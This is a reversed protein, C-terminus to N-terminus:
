TAAFTPQRQTAVHPGVDDSVLANYHAELDRVIRQFSFMDVARARAATSMRKRLSPNSVIRQIADGLSKEDNVTVLFGTEGDRVIEPMGGARTAITPTGCAMAEVLPIGFTESMSPMVCVAARGYHAPLEDNPVYGVFRVRDIIDPTLLRHLRSSYTTDELFRLRRPYEGRLRTRLRAWPTTDYFTRLKAVVAADDLNAFYHFPAVNDNGIIELRLDPHRHSALRFAELLVHIGKEPSIRGVFLVMPASSNRSGSERPRFHETDVANYITGIQSAFEPLARRTRESVYDSCGLVRDVHRMQRRAVRPPLLNLWEVHLQIVIKATPHEEHIIAAAQPFSHVHVIDVGRTALDRGVRRYYERYFLPSSFPSRRPHLLRTLAVVYRAFRDDRPTAIRLYHCGDHTSDGRLGPFERSYVFLEHRETLRRAVEATWVPVSGRPEGPVIRQFPQHVFAIKM